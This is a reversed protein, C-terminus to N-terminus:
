DLLIMRKTATETATSLKYYLMGAGQLDSRNISEVNMGQNYEGDIEKLLKGSVDYISLTVKGGQPLYFSISTENNFPNPQNQFLQMSEEAIDGENSGGVGNMAPLATFTADMSSKNGCGDTAVFTVTLSTPGPNGGCNITPNNPFTSWNVNAWCDEVEAYGHADVWADLKDQTIYNCVVLEDQPAEVFLPPETDAIIVMGECTSTRGCADTAFFRVIRTGNNICLGQSNPNYNNTVNLVNSCSSEAQISALWAQIVQEWGEDECNLQLPVSPCNLFVPATNAITFKRTDSATRGCDDTVTYTYTYTAGPCNASGTTTPGTVTTIYGLTCGATVTAYDPNLNFNWDCSVTMDPPSIITPPANNGITFIRNAIVERGCNDRVRYAYTYTTGPCEHEGELAPPLIKLDYDEGCSTTVTADDNSIVIDEYCNVTEGPIVSVTPAANDITIIQPCSATNGCDDVVKYIYTYTTGPCNAAGEVDPQTAYAVFGLGCDTTVDLANPDIVVDEICTVTMDGPCTITPANPPAVVFTQVCMETFLGQTVTYTRVVTKGICDDGTNEDASSVEIPLSGCGGSISGGQAIFGAANTAAAPVPNNCSLNQDPPCTIIIQPDSCTMSLEFLGESSGFGHVLVFYETGDMSVFTVTSRLSSLGCGPDDDDGAECILDDCSGTYVRLKTDYNTGPNCTSLTVCSGDGIFSYWLGGGTGDSTGCFPAVDNSANVTSGSVVQGCDIPLAGLCENNDFTCTMALEFDGEEDGFGHVLIYYTTGNVSAFNVTSNLTSSACGLDDDNGTICNLASCSGDYVRLKTNFNTNASCTTLEVNAGNGEFTYWVGGGSGDDTGCVPAIDPNMDITSGQIIQGCMIPFADVCEDNGNGCPSLCTANEVTSLLVATPQPGFGLNFNIGVSVLHCYSMITGGNAPIGPISCNGETFGACGDIATNNGNWVCAHTHRSGILHGMEHTFVMVTWSYTPVDNYTSQVGSFCMSEDPDPNCIGSFGAAIGGGGGYGVLHALDGNFTGVNAQFQNLFNGSNPGTYPDNVDWVLMESIVITLGDNAYIIASQNFFGTVYTTANATGGKGVWITNDVEIYIGICDGVDRGASYNLQEDTYGRFDDDETECSFENEVILNKDLYLIHDTEHSEIKGLVYNGDNNSIMGIIQDEFISIAVLSQADGKIVGHYHLGSQPTVPVNRRSAEYINFNPSFIDSQYLELEITEGNSYFPLELNIQQHNDLLIDMAKQADFELIIGGRVVDSYANNAKIIDSFLSTKEFSLNQAKKAEVNNFIKNEQVQQGYSFFSTFLFLIFLVRKINKQRKM